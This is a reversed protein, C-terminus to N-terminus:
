EGRAEVALGRETRSPFIVFNFTFFRSSGWFGELRSKLVHIILLLDRQESQLQAPPVEARSGIVDGNASASALFSLKIRSVSHSQGLM